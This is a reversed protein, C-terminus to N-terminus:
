FGPVDERFWARLRTGHPQNLEAVVICNPDAPDLCPAVRTGTNDQYWLPFGNAPDNTPSVAPTATAASSATLPLTALLGSLLLLLVGIFFSRRRRATRGDTRREPTRTPGQM